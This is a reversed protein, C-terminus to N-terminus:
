LPEEKGDRVIALRSQGEVFQRSEFAIPQFYGATGGPELGTAKFAAAVYEAAKKHGPSGTDRGELSDDALFRVHALWRDAPGAAYSAATCALAAVISALCRRRM